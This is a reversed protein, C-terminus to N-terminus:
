FINQDKLEIFINEYPITFICDFDDDEKRFRKSPNNSYEINKRKERSEDRLLKTTREESKTRCNFDKTNRTRSNNQSVVIAANKEIQQRNEVVRFIGETRAKMTSLDYPLSELIREHLLSGKVLGRVFLKGSTQFRFRLNLQGAGHVEGFLM